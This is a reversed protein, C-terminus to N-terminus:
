LFQLLTTITEVIRAHATVNVATTMTVMAAGALARRMASLVM